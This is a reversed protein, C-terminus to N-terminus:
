VPESDRLMQQLTVYRTPRTRAWAANAKDCAAVITTAPVGAQIDQRLAPGGALTDFFPLWELTGQHRAQIALLLGVALTFPRIQEADTVQVRIGVCREGKYRPNSAKGEIVRPTYTIAELTCGVTCAAPIAALVGQADLWPAGIVHFPTDTGRGENLNVGEFFCMGSYLLATEATPINPSPPTWRQPLAEARLDNPWGDIALLRVDFGGRSFEARWFLLAIEGITMGHRTPVDAACVLSETRVPLPGEVIANGLPNPRDLVIMPVRAEACAAMCEKMTAIYTYFRAGVDQLDVVFVDVGRLEDRSPRKRDGYLSIVPTAGAESKVKAGAEAQGRLGHEPSYVRTVNVEPALALVELLPRGLQDVAAHHTLVAVRKGRLPKFEDWVLRDLGTHANSKTPCYAAHVATHFVRRLTRNDRKARSPHCTNSLLIAYLGSDFDVWLSTGTWGTHGFATRFPLYGESGDRWPDVKWGLAQWPYSPVHTLKLMEAMTEHRLIRGDRMGECFRAVDEAPAFLGAHGSIGGMAWANEDHVEGLLTRGRWACLETAACQVQLVPLPTFGTRQMNLPGFIRRRCFLEFPQGAAKEVVKGLLIFGLDSYRRRTGPRWDSPTDAIRGLAADWSQVEQHLPRGAPLGTTHTLLQRPTFAGLEPYPLWTTLPADLDLRGEEWLLMAATTTAIVKTLSALDYVTDLTAPLAEPARQRLGTAGRFLCGEANGVWAVAGPAGSARVAQELASQLDIRM